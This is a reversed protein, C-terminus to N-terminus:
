RTGLAIVKDVQEFYNRWTEEKMRLLSQTSAELESFLSCASPSRRNAAKLAQSIQDVIMERDRRSTAEAHRLLEERNRRAADDPLDIEEALRLLSEEYDELRRADSERMELELAARRAQWHAAETELYCDPGRHSPEAAMEVENALSTDVFEIYSNECREAAATWSGSVQARRDGQEWVTSFYPGNRAMFEETRSAQGLSGEMAARLRRYLTRCSKLDFDHREMRPIVLIRGVRDDWVLVLVRSPFAGSRLVYSLCHAWTPNGAECTGSDEKNTLAHRVEVLTMGLSIGDYGVIEATWAPRAVFTCLSLLALAFLRQPRLRALPSPM